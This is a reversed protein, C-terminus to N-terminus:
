NESGEERGLLGLRLRGGLPLVPSGPDPAGESEPSLSSQALVNYRYWFIFLFHYLVM